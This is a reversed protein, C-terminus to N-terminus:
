CWKNFVSERRWQINKGVKNYILQNYTCPNIKPSEIWKMSRNRNKHWYWVTKIVTAKHYVRILHFSSEELVMKRLIAKAIWPGKHKRVFKCIKQELQTFFTMPLKISIANFRYIEKPLLWKSLISKELFVTYREM